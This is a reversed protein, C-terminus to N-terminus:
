DYKKWWDAAEARLRDYFDLYEMRPSRYGREEKRSNVFWRFFTSKDSQVEVYEPRYESPDIWVTWSVALTTTQLGPFSESERAIHTQGGMEARQACVGLEEKIARQVATRDAPNERMKLKEALSSTLTRRRVRGDKFEQRDEVLKLVAGDPAQCYVDIALVRIVRILAGDADEKVEAEGDVVERYLHGVTKAKGKGWTGTPIKHKELLSLLVLYRALAAVLPRDAVPEGRELHHVTGRFVDDPGVGVVADEKGNYDSHIEAIVPIGLDMFFKRWEPVKSEDGALILGMTAHRCIEENERSTRGGIDVITLPLACDRVSDAIRRVFEPTFASKYEKKCAAALGPDREVTQQFWAGEGDPCATIVYPYPAGPIARLAQKLGERLCSKGSRPPGGLVLKM